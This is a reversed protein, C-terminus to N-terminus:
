KILTIKKTILANKATVRVFYVGSSQASLDLQLDHIGAKKQEGSILTAIKQGVVNFVEINVKSAEPLAYQINTTPNFPNPYAGVEFKVPLEIDPENSVSTSKQAQFTLTGEHVWINNKKKLPITVSGNEFQHIILNGNELQQEIQFSKFSDLVESDNLSITALNNVSSRIGIPISIDNQFDTNTIAMVEGFNELAYIEHYNESLSNLKRFQISSSYLKFEDEYGSNNVKLIIREVSNNVKPVARTGGEIAASLFSVESNESNAVIWFGQGPSLRHPEFSGAYTLPRYVYRGVGNNFSSEWYAMTESVAVTDVRTQLWQVPITYPVGVLNFGKFEPTTLNTNNSLQYIFKDTRSLASSDTNQSLIKPWGGQIGPTNLDDDEYIYMAFGQGIEIKEKLDTIPEWSEDLPNYTFVNPSGLPLDSGEAGQTWLPELYEQFTVERPSTLLRWGDKGAVGSIEIETGLIELAVIGKFEHSFGSGDSWKYEFPSLVGGAQFPTVPFRFVLKGNVIDNVTVDLSDVTNNSLKENSEFVNNENADFYACQDGSSCALLPKIRITRLTDEINWDLLVLKEKTFTFLNSQDNILYRTERTGGTSFPIHNLGDLMRIKRDDEHAIFINGDYDVDLDTIKSYDGRSGGVALEVDGLYQFGGGLFFLRKSSAQVIKAAGSPVDNLAVVIRGNDEVNLAEITLTRGTVDTQEDFDYELGVTGDPNFRKLANDSKDWVYYVEFDRRAGVAGVDAASIFGSMDIEKAASFGTSTLVDEEFRILRNNLSDYAIFATESVRNIYQYFSNAGFQNNETGGGNFAKNDYYMSVLFNGQDTDLSMILRDSFSIMESNFIVTSSGLDVSDVPVQVQTTDWYFIKSNQNDYEYIFGDLATISNNLPNASASASPNFTKKLDANQAMTMSSGIVIGCLVYLLKKFM